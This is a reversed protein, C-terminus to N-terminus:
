ESSENILGLEYFKEITEKWSSVQVTELPCPEASNWRERFERIPADNGGEFLADGIFILRNVGNQLLTRVANAKDQKEVGIDFSTQGGLSITLQRESILTSLERKLHEMMKQRYNTALDYAVFNVRNSLSESDELKVRGVPCLNIMSGRYTIREGLVKLPPEIQFERQKLANTLVNALFEYDSEGLYERINFESLLSISMGESYDCRYHVAGNSVFADFRKRFGFRYLPNFFQDELLTIHSGAAVHFPIRLRTLIEAMQETLQQRPPTLTNDIDLLVAMKMAMEENTLM